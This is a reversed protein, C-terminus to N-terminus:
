PRYWGIYRIKDFIYRKGRLEIYWRNKIETDRKIKLM